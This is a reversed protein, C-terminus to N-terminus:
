GALDRIVSDDGILIRIPQDLVSRIFHNKAQYKTAFEKPSYLVPAIERKLTQAVPSLALSLNKLSVDGVVLLDIDSESHDEDRAVSGYILALLVQHKIPGLADTIESSLRSTKRIINTLEEFIPNAQNAQYYNRNGDKSAAVLGAISLKELEKLLHSIRIGLEREMERAYYRREPDGYLLTLIKAKSNSFLAEIMAM